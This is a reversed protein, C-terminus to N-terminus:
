KSKKKKADTEDNIIEELVEKEVEKEVPKENLKPSLEIEAQNIASNWLDAFSLDKKWTYQELKEQTIVSLDNNTRGDSIVTEDRVETIGNKEVGLKVALHERIEKPLSIWHQQYVRDFM